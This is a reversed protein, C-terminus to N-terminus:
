AVNGFQRKESAESGVPRPPRPILSSRGVAMDVGVPSGMGGVTNWGPTTDTIHTFCADRNLAYLMPSIFGLRTNLKRNLLIMLGAFMPVAVGTGGAVRWEGDIMVEYGTTPSANMAIDPVGRGRNDDIQSQWDPREFVESFGGGTAGAQGDDWAAELKGDDRGRLELESAGCAIIYPSSAPFDIHCNGDGVGDEIGMDGAPAVVTIGLMAAEQAISNVTDMAQGSWNCEANGWGICLVSICNLEDHVACSMANVFGRFTNPALYVIEEVGPAACAAIELDSAVAMDATEPSSPQNRAHDISIVKVAPSPVGMRECFDRLDGPRFGGGLEVFGIRQGEGVADAPFEYTRCAQTATMSQNTARDDFSSAIRARYRVQHRSQIRNCLGLISQVCPALHEPLRLPGEYGRYAGEEHQYEKLEVSFAKELAGATGALTIMRRPVENGRELVHLRHAHAFERVLHLHHTEAGFERAFEAHSLQQPIMDRVKLPKRPTLYISIEILQHADTPGISQAKPHHVCESGEIAVVNFDKM